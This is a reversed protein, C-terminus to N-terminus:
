DAFTGRVRHPVRDRVMVRVDLEVCREPMDDDSDLCIVETRIVVKAENSPPAATPEEAMVVEISDRHSRGQGLVKLVAAAVEEVHSSVNLDANTGEVHVVESMRADPPVDEVDQLHNIPADEVLQTAGGAVGEHVQSSEVERDLGSHVMIESSRSNEGVRPPRLSSRGKRSVKM